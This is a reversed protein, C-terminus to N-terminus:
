IILVRKMWPLKVGKSPSFLGLGSYIGRPPLQRFSGPRWGHVASIHPACRAPHNRAVRIRLSFSTGTGAPHCRATLLALPGLLGQVSSERVCRGSRCGLTRMGPRRWRCGCSCPGTPARCLRLLCCRSAWPSATWASAGRATWCPSACSAACPSPSSATAPPSPHPHSLHATHHSSHTSPHIPPHTSPLDSPHIFLHTPRSPSIHGILTALLEM